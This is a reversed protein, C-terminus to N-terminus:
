GEEQSQEMHFLSCKTAMKTRATMRRDRPLQTQRHRIRGGSCPAGAGAPPGSGWVRQAENLVYRRVRAARHARTKVPTVRSFSLACPIGPARQVRPGTHLITCPFACSCVPEASADPMGQTIAKRSIGHEGRRRIRRTVTTPPNQPQEIGTPNSIAVASKAGAVPTLVVRNQRVSLRREDQTGAYRERPEVRGAVDIARRRERTWWMGDRTRSSARGGRKDSRSPQFYGSIQPRRSASTQGDHWNTALRRATGIGSPKDSLVTQRAM